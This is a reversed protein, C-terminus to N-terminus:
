CTPSMMYLLDVSFHPSTTPLPLILNLFHGRFGLRRKTQNFGNGPKQHHNHIM